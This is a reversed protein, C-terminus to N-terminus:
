AALRRLTAWDDNARATASRRLVVTLRQGTLLKAVGCVKNRKVMDSKCVSKIAFCHGTEGLEMLMVQGSAGVGLPKVQALSLPSTLRSTLDLLPVPHM